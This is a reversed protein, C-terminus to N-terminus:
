KKEGQNIILESEMWLNLLTRIERVTSCTPCACLLNDSAFLLAINQRMIKDAWAEFLVRAPSAKLRKFADIRETNKAKIYPINEEKNPDPISEKDIGYLLKWATQVTLFEKDM